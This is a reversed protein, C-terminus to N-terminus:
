DEILLAQRPCRRVAAEVKARLEEGPAKIRLHVHDDDGVRFVEPCMKMCVANGECRDDDILIKMAARKERAELTFVVPVDKTGKMLNSRGQAVPAALETDRVRRLLAEFMVGIGLQAQDSWCYYVLTQQDLLTRAGDGRFGSVREFQEM